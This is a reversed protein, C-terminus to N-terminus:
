HGNLVGVWFADEEITCAIEKLVATDQFLTDDFLFLFVNYWLGFQVQFNIM